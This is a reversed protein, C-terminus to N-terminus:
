QKEKYNKMSKRLCKTAEEATINGIGDNIMSAKELECCEITANQDILYDLLEEKIESCVLVMDTGIERLQYADLFRHDEYYYCKRSNLTIATDSFYDYILETEKTIKM